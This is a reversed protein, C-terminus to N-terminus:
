QDVWTGVFDSVDAGDILSDGNFDALPAQAVWAQAFTELDAVDVAGTYDIDAGQSFTGSEEEGPPGVSQGSAESELPHKVLQVLDYYSRYLSQYGTPATNYEAPTTRLLHVLKIRVTDPEVADTANSVFRTLGGVNERNRFVFSRRAQNVGPTYFGYEYEPPPPPVDDDAWSWSEYLMEPHLGTELSTRTVLVWREPTHEWDWAYVRGRLAAQDLTVTEVVPKVETRLNLQLGDTSLVNTVNRFEVQLETVVPTQCITQCNPSGPPFCYCPAPSEVCASYEGTSTSPGPDLIELNTRLAVYRIRDLDGAAKGDRSVLTGLSASMSFVTPDYVDHFCRVFPPWTNSYYSATDTSCDSGYPTLFCSSTNWLLIDGGQEAAHLGIQDRCDNVWFRDPPGPLTADAADWSVNPTSMWAAVMHFHAHLHSAHVAQYVYEHNRLSARWRNKKAAPLTSPNNDHDYPLLKYYIPSQLYQPEENLAARRVAYNVLADMDGRRTLGSELWRGSIGQPPGSPLTIPFSPFVV